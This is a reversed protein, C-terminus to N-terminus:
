AIAIDATLELNEDIDAFSCHGVGNPWAWGWGWKLKMYSPLKEGAQHTTNSIVSPKGKGDKEFM